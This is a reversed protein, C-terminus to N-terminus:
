TTPALRWGGRLGWCLTLVERVCKLLIPCSCLWIKLAQMPMIQTCGPSFRLHDVLQLLYVPSPSRLAHWAKRNPSKVLVVSHCSCHLWKHVSTLIRTRLLPVSYGYPKCAEEQAPGTFVGQGLSARVLGAGLGQNSVPARTLPGDWALSLKKLSSLVSGSTRTLM